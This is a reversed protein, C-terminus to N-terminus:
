SEGDMPEPVGTTFAVFSAKGCEPCDMWETDAVGWVDCDAGCHTCTWETTISSSAVRDPRPGPAPTVYAHNPGGNEWGTHAAAPLGCQYTVGACKDAPPLQLEPDFDSM